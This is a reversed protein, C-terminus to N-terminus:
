EVEGNPVVEGEWGFFKFLAKRAAQFKKPDQRCVSCILPANFKPVIIVKVPGHYMTLPSDDCVIPTKCGHCPRAFKM